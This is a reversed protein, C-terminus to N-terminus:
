TQWSDGICSKFKNWYFQKKSKTVSNEFNKRLEQFRALKTPDSKNCKWNRHAKNRKTRLNKLKNDYWKPKKPINSKTVDVKPAFLKLVEEFVNEFKAFASTVDSCSKIDM